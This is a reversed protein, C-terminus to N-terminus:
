PRSMAPDTPHRTSDNQLVDGTPNHTTPGIPSDQHGNVADVTRALCGEGVFERRQKGRGSSRYDPRGHIAKM